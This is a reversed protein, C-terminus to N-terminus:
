VASNLYDKNMLSNQELFYVLYFENILLFSSYHHQVNLVESFRELLYEM